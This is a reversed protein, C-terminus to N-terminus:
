DYWSHGMRVLIHPRIRMLLSSHLSFFFFFSATTISWRIPHFRVKLAQWMLWRSSNKKIVDRLGWSRGPAPMVVLVLKCFSGCLGGTPFSEYVSLCACLGTHTANEVLSICDFLWRLAKRRRRRQRRQTQSLGTLEAMESAMIIGGVGGISKRKHKMSIDFLM